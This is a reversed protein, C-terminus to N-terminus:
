WDVSSRGSGSAATASAEAAQRGFVPERPSAFVRSAEIALATGLSATCVVIAIISIMSIMSIM